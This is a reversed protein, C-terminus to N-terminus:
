EVKKKLLEIAVDFLSSPTSTDMVTVANTGSSASTTGVSTVMGGPMGGPDGGPV